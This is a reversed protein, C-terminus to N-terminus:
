NTRPKNNPKDYRSTFEDVHADAVAKLLEYDNNIDVGKLKLRRAEKILEDKDEKKLKIQTGHKM